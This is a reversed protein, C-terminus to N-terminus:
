HFGRHYTCLKTHMGHTVFQKRSYVCSLPCVLHCDLATNSPRHSRSSNTCASAQHWSPNFALLTRGRRICRPLTITRSTSRNFFFLPCALDCPRSLLIFAPKASNCGVASFLPSTVHNPNPCTSCMKRKSCLCTAGGERCGCVDVFVSGGCM